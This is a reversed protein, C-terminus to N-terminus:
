LSSKTYNMDFLIAPYLPVINKGAAQRNPYEQDLKDILEKEFRKAILHYLIVYIGTMVLTAIAMVRFLEPLNMDFKSIIQGGILSAL